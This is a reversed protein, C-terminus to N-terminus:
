GSSEAGKARKMPITTRQLFYSWHETVTWVENGLPGRPATRTSRSMSLCSCLSPQGIVLWNPPSLPPDAELDELWPAAGVFVVCTSVCQNHHSISGTLLCSPKVALKIFIIWVIWQSNFVYTNYIVKRSIEVCKM